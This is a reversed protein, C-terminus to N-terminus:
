LDDTTISFGILVVRTILSIGVISGVGFTVILTGNVEIAGVGWFFVLLLDDITMSDGVLVILGDVAMEGGTLVLLLGNSVVSGEVLISSFSDTIM